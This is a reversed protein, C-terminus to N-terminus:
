EIFYGVEKITSIQYTDNSLDIQVSDGNGTVGIRGNENRVTLYSNEYSLYLAFRIQMYLDFLTSDDNEKLTGILRSYLPREGEFSVVSFSDQVNSATVFYPSHHGALDSVFVKILLIDNKSYITDLLAYHYNDCNSEILNREREKEWNTKKEIKNEISQADCSECVFEVRETCSFLLLFLLILVRM